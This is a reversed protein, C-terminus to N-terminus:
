DNDFMAHGLMVKTLLPNLNEFLFPFMFVGPNIIYKQSNCYFFYKKQKILPFSACSILAM